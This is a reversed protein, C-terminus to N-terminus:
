NSKILNKIGVKESINYFTQMEEKTHLPPNDKEFCFKLDEVLNYKAIALPNYNLIEYKVDNYLNFIYSSIKEINETATTIDPIMPTRVILKKKHESNLILELNSKILKNSVKTYQQHLIDDFIKFDAFITDVLPLIKNLNHSSTFLSTEIATNIGEEKLRKLLEIVFNIQFFIEGGSLTVGGNYKFFPKDKLVKEMAEDLTYYISDMVLANTPCVDILKLSESLETKDLVVKINNNEKIISGNNCTNLCTECGICKNKRFILNQKSSIGEPNQCWSCRLPCGKFFIVTRIGDGDHTSFRQFDFILGLNSTQM